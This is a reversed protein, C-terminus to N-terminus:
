FDSIHVDLVRDLKKKKKKKKKKTFTKKEPISGTVKRTLDRHRERVRWIENESFFRFLNAKKDKKNQVHARM